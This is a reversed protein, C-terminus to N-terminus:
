IVYRYLLINALFIFLVSLAIRERISQALSSILSSLYCASTTVYADMNCHIVDVYNEDHLLYWVTGKPIPLRNEIYYKDPDNLENNLETSYIQLYTGKKNITKKLFYAM